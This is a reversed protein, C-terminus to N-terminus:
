IHFIPRANCALYSTIPDICIIIDVIYVFSHLVPLVLIVPLVNRALYSTIYINYIFRPSQYLYVQHDPSVPRVPLIKAERLLYGLKYSLNVGKSTAHCGVGGFMWGVVM